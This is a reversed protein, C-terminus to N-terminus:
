AGGERPASAGSGEHWAVAFGNPYRLDVAAIRDARRALVAAWVARFRDLRPEIDGRGLRLVVRNDLEIRWSRRADLHLGRVALQMPALGRDIEHLRVLMDPGHGSPGSMAPLDLGAPLAAPRFVKGRASILAAENWYAAPRHEAVAVDLTDPWIRRLGASRLWPLTELDSQLAGLDVSFFGAGTTHRTVVREVSEAPTHAMEGDIRVVTIPWHLSRAVWAGGALLVSVVLIALIARLARGRDIGGSAPESERRSM